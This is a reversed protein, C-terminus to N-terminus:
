KASSQPEAHVFEPPVIRNFRDIIGSRECREMVSPNPCSASFNDEAPKQLLRLLDDSEKKIEDHARIELPKVVHTMICETVSNKM